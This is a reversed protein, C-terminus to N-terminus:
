SRKLAAALDEPKAIPLSCTPGECIYTTAMGGEQTKGSAPHGVPLKRGPAIVALVRNPLSSEFVARLLGATDPKGREGIIAIQSAHALFERAALLTAHGFPNREVEGSFAAFLKEARRRCADEGTLHFLRALNMAMAGNGSPTPGDLAQKARLILAEADASVTFYGGGTQDWYFDACIKEWARARNLFNEDGTTEYLALAAGIMQAYDDLLGTNKARGARFSHLLRGGSEMQATVFSFARRALDLWEPKAFAAAAEALGAIMMGNWDALAKDDLGPRIRKEREKLLVARDQALAAEAAAGAFEINNLRNLINHGEWNGTPSVDYAQKFAAARPGLLADIEGESWVYFKGEEHESDADLSSAFGGEPLVMERALWAVTEAVRAAYLPERTEKWAETLLRILL